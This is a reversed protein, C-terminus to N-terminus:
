AIPYLYENHAPSLKPYTRAPFWEALYDPDSIFASPIQLLIPCISDLRGLIYDWRSVFMTPMM